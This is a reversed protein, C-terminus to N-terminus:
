VLVGSKSIRIEGDIVRGDLNLNRHPHPLTLRIDGDNGSFREKRRIFGQMLTRVAQGETKYSGDMEGFADPDLERYKAEGLLKRLWSKFARDIFISGCKRGTPITLTQLELSPLVKKVL